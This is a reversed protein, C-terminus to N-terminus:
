ELTIGAIENPVARLVEKSGGVRGDGLRLGARQLEAGRDYLPRRRCVEPRDIERTRPTLGQGDARIRQRHSGCGPGPRGGSKIDAAVAAAAVGQGPLEVHCFEGVRVAIENAKIRREFLM